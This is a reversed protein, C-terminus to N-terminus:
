MAAATQRVQAHIGDRMAAAVAETRTTVGLKAFVAALHHDVTRVSRVLRQAIEANRLGECLLQLVEIERSTLQHPNTQTSSRLGRPLGKRGEARWRRRLADAAPRAGLQEFLKFAELQATADGESLARAQEYPCELERWANGAARWEGRLQLAFPEACDSPGESDGGARDIWYTLEGVFWAHRHRVAIDLAPAAERVVGALDGRLFAAEARAARVPAVLQLSDGALALALAEDLTEAAGPDGRRLRLRGLAVLAMVRSANCASPQDLIRHAQPSVEDWRGLYMDCMALWSTCHNRYIDIEHLDAFAIGETMYQRAQHLRFIEGCGAGLNNYTNAVICAQGTSLAMELGRHLDAHGAEFDLFLRAAGRTSTGAAVLFHDGLQEALALSRNSWAVAVESERLYHRLQAEVRYASALDFGPPLAELLDIARRSADEADSNRLAPLYTLALQSLNRAEGLPDGLARRITGLELRAAIAEALQDTLQCATAYAELWAAREVAPVGAGERAQALALRYHAAAERRAGRQLAEQAAAPAHRLLAAHDGASRAHHVLRALLSPSDCGEGLVRLVQAHLARAIPEPLAREVAVRALEHRFRLASPATTLLGSNLCEEVSQVDPRLVSEVLALEVKGPVVSALKIVAQAGESLRAFRALVVDQVSRPVGAMGHRLMETVFFANGNTAAYVGEPSRLARRALLEVADPTLRPVDVHTVREGPLDGLLRRLPHGTTVEDDRYTVVLLCAARDIRRGLFKLLDLTADDAWHVDEFVVLTPTRAAQLEALVGEFLAARGGPAQLLPRFGVDCSRAIDQLPALPHPTQLADCAGWWLAARGRRGAFARLVSTKGVGAEGALLVTRGTGCQVARLQEELRALLVDREILESSDDQALPSASPSPRNIAHM